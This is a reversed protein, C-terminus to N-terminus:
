ALVSELHVRDNTWDDLILGGRQTARSAFVAVRWSAGGRGAYLHSKESGLGGSEM